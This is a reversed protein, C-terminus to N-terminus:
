DPYAIDALEPMAAAADALIDIADAYAPRRLRELTAAGAQLSIELVRTPDMFNAGMARVETATPEICLTPVGLAEIARAERRLCRHSWLRVPGLLSRFADSPASSMPSLIVVLDLELEPDALLDANTPSHVGGDVYRRGDIVVPRFFSPIACSAEVAQGISVEVDPLGSPTDGLAGFPKGFVVRQGDDLSVATIWTPEDPWSNGHLEFPREGVVATPLRGAPLMSLGLRMPSAGLGRRLERVALGPAAPGFWWTPTSPRDRGSIQRLRAMGAPDTPLSLIRELVAEAAVGGRLMAAVGSGASTGVIVHAARADWGTLQRMSALVGTHFAHGATGGGGLVLGIRPSVPESRSPM